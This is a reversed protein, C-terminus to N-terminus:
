APAIPEGESLERLQGELRDLHQGYLRQLYWRTFRLIAWQCGVGLLLALGVVLGLLLWRPGAARSLEHWLYYGLLLLLTVPGTWRTLRYYFRLLQRLGQCLVQLHGRLSADARGMQRLLRIQRAYHYGLLALLLLEVGAYLTRFPGNPLLLLPLLAILPTAIIEAWANRRMRDILSTSARGLLGALQAPPTGSPPPAQQWQRRLDDLEM